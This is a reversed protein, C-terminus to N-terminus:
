KLIKDIMEIIMPTFANGAVGELISQITKLSENLILNKPKPSNVQSNVTNMESILEDFVLSELIIQEKIKEIETLIIKIDNTKDTDFNITQSSYNSGQQIASNNMNGINIVNIPLFHRTSNYPNSHSDEIEILGDHTIGIGGGLTKPEILNEESLYDVINRTIQRDFGLESGLEWMSVFSSSNGDTIQYLKELFLFSNKKKADINM